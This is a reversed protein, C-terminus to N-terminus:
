CCPRVFLEFVVRDGCCCGDGVQLVEELAEGGDLVFYRGGGTEEVAVDNGEVGADFSFFSDFGDSLVELLVCCGVGFGDAFCEGDDHVAVGDLKAM